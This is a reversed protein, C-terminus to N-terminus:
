AGGGMVSSYYAVAQRVSADSLWACSRRKKKLYTPSFEDMGGGVVGCAQLQTGLDKWGEKTTPWADDKHVIGMLLGAQLGNIKRMKHREIPPDHTGWSHLLHTLQSKTPVQVGPLSSLAQLVRTTTNWLTSANSHIYLQFLLFTTRRNLPTVDTNDDDDQEEEQKKKGEEENEVEDGEDDETEEEYAGIAPLSPSASASPSPGEAPPAQHEVSPTAPQQQTSPVAALTKSKKTATSTSPPPLPDERKRKKMKAPSLMDSVKTSASPGGGRVLYGVVQNGKAVTVVLKYPLIGSTGLMGVLVMGDEEEDVDSDSDSDSDIVIVDVATRALVLANKLEQFSSTTDNSSPHGFVVSPSRTSLQGRVRSPLRSWELEVEEPLGGGSAVVVEVELGIHKLLLKMSFVSNYGM